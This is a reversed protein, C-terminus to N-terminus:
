EYSGNIVIQVTTKDSSFHYPIYSYNDGQGAGRQSVLGAFIQHM